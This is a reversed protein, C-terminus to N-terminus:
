SNELIMKIAAGPQILKGTEKDNKTKQGTANLIEYAEETSIEPRFSKMLGILGAVYPTAMSTGNFTRYESGPFTSYIKVGPAAVGMKMDNNFNSFSARGLLTDIASVTIVGPTNAPAFDKANRNSNGAAVVVIAGKKNAYEVAKAYARQRADNSLGGLSLSLVDAGADAAELIGDIIMKQTGFGGGSLVKVSTVQVYDNTQSFSAVGKQNNSVAAAIGACHTGHGRPDNNYKSKISTFNMKLDEHGADVGTDLIAILAEKKPKQGELVKYLKDINMVDFGWLNELGPDNLGYKENMKPLARQAETELPSLKYQENAEVWEILEDSALANKIETLHSEYATPVNILYYDDLDTAGEDKPSFAPTATLEYKDLIAKIDQVRHHDKIEVLFEGNVDLLLDSGESIAVKQPFTSKLKDFYYVDLGALVLFLAVMFLWKKKRFFSLLLPVTLLVLMERGFMLFKFDWAGKSMAWSFGFLAIAAFFIKRLLNSRTENDQFFFWFTLAGLAVLFSIPYIHISM